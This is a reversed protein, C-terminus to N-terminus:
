LKLMKKKSAQDSGTSLQLLWSFSNM